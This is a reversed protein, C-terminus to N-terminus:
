ICDVGMAAQGSVVKIIRFLPISTTIQRPFIIMPITYLIRLGTNQKRDMPNLRFLGQKKTAFWINGVKDQCLNYVLVELNGGPIIRGDRNLSGIEKKNQDFVHVTGDKCAVWLRNQHDEFIARTENSISYVSHNRFLYHNFYDPLFTCKFFGNGRNTSIWLVGQSDSLVHNVGYSFVTNIDENYANYFPVLRNNV